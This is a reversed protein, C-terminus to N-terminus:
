YLCNASHYSVHLNHNNYIIVLKGQVLFSVIVGAMEPLRGINIVDEHDLAMYYLLTGEGFCQLM